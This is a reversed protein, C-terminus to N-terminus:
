LRIPSNKRIGLKCMTKWAEFETILEIPKWFLNALEEISSNAVVCKLEELNNISFYDHNRKNSLHIDYLRKLFSAHEKAVHLLNDLGGFMRLISTHSKEVIDGIKRVSPVEDILTCWAVISIIRQKQAEIGLNERLDYTAGRLRNRILYVLSHTLESVGNCVEVGELKNHLIDELIGVILLDMLAFPMIDGRSQSHAAKDPSNAEKLQELICLCLQDIYYPNGKRAYELIEMEIGYKLLQDQFEYEWEFDRIYYVEAEWLEFNERLRLYEEITQNERFDNWDLTFEEHEEEPETILTDPEQVYYPLPLFPYDNKKTQKIKLQKVLKAFNAKLEDISKGRFSLEEVSIDLFLNGDDDDVAEDIFRSKHNVIRGIFETEDINVEIKAVFKRYTLYALENVLKRFGYPRWKGVAKLRAM